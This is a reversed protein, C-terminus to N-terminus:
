INRRVINCISNVTDSNSPRQIKVVKVTSAIKLCNELVSAPYKNRKFLPALFLSDLIAQIKEIGSLETYKLYELNTKCIVFICSISHANKEFNFTNTYSFKDKEEDVYNLLTTDSISEAINRCVKQIPFAPYIINNYAPNPFAIDDCMYKFGYESLALSTTSKGAGSEGCLLFAKNEGYLASCHFGLCGRQFFLFAMGWGLVYTQHIASYRKSISYVTITDGNEVQIFGENYIFWCLHPSYECSLGKIKKSILINPPTTKYYVVVDAKAFHQVSCLDNNLLSLESEVCLGYIYYRYM